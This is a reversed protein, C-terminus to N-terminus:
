DIILELLGTISEQARIILQHSKMNISHDKRVKAGSSNHEELFLRLVLEFSLVYVRVIDGHIVM